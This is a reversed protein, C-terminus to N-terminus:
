RKWYKPTSTPPHIQLGSRDVIVVARRDCLLKLDGKGCGSNGVRKALPIWDRVPVGNRGPLTAWARGRAGGASFPVGTLVIYGTEGDWSIAFQDGQVRPPVLPSSVRPVQPESGRLPKPLSAASASLSLKAIWEIVARKGIIDYRSFHPLRVVTTPQGEICLRLAQCTWDGHGSPFSEGTAVSDAQQVLYEYPRNGLCLILRPRVTRLILRHVPWCRHATEPYGCDAEGSSRRFILNSACVERPNYGLSQLLWVVRRQFKDQGPRGRDWEADIYSNSAKSPLNKIHAQIDPDDLGDPDLGPNLGILYVAGPRLTTASSYLICGSQRVFDGLLSQAELAFQEPTIYGAVCRIYCAEDRQARM